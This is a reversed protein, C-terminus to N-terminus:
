SSSRPQCELVLWLNDQSAKAGIRALQIVGLEGCDAFFDAVLAQQHGVHRVDGAQDGSTYGLIWEVIAEMDDGRGRM